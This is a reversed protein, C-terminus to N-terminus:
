LADCEVLPWDIYAFEVPNHPLGYWTKPDAGGANLEKGAKILQPLNANAVFLNGFAVLDATGAEICQAAM